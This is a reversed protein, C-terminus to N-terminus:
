RLTSHFTIGLSIKSINEPKTFHFCPPKLSYDVTVCYFTTIVHCMPFIQTALYNQKATGAQIRTDQLQVISFMM